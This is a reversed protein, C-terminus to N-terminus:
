LQLGLSKKLLAPLTALGTKAASDPARKPFELLATRLAVRAAQRYMKAFREASHEILAKLAILHSQTIENGPTNVIRAMARWYNETPYPNVINRAKAYDRLAISAYGAALGTMREHHAQERIWHKPADEDDREQRWGLRARGANTKEDGHIGFLIPCAKHFKALLINLLSHGQIFFADSAFISSAVIGPSDATEPRASAERAWQNILTKAFINLEYILLGPVQCNTDNIGEPVGDPFCPRVDVTIQQFQKAQNLIGIIKDRVSRVTTKDSTLQGISKKIERRWDGVKSKAQPDKKARTVVDQRMQKLWQHLHLYRKHEAEREALTSTFLSAQSAEATSPTIIPQAPKVEVQQKARREEEARQADQETKQQEAAQREKEKRETDLRRAEQEQQHQRKESAAKEKLEALRREEDARKRQEIIERQLRAQEEQALERAQAHEQLQRKREIEQLVREQAIRASNRVREHEVSAAKLADAYTKRRKSEARELREYLEKNYYEHQAILEELHERSPSDFGAAGRSRKLTSAPM